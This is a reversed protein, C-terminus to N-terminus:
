SKRHETSELEAPAADSKRSLNGGLPSVDSSASISIRKAWQYFDKTVQRVKTDKDSWDFLRGQFKYVHRGSHGRRRICHFSGSFTLVNCRKKSTKVARVKKNKLVTKKKPTQREGWTVGQSTKHPGQHKRPLICPRNLNRAGCITGWERTINGRKQTHRGTHGEPLQCTLFIDKQIGKGYSEHRTSCCLKVGGSVFEVPPAKYWIPACRNCLGNRRSRCKKGCNKCFIRPRKQFCSKCLHTKNERIPVSCHKCAWNLEPKPYRKPEPPPPNAIGDM